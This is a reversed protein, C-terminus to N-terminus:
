PCPGWYGLLAALDAGDVLGSHDIDAPGGSTGWAGLLASLDAGDVIGDDNLDGPCDSACVSAVTNGGQDTWPGLIQDSPEDNM